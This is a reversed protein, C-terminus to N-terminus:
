LDPKAMKEEMTSYIVKNLASCGLLIKKDLYFHEIDEGDLVSYV